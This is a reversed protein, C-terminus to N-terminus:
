FVKSFRGSISLGRGGCCREKDHSLRLRMAAANIRLRTVYHQPPAGVLERFRAAFTTRSMAVHRALSVVTWSHHPNRHIAALVRGIQQHRIAALWGSNDTESSEDLFSRLAHLFLVDVLRDVVEISGTGGRDLEALIHKVNSPVWAASGSDGSRLHLFPPLGGIVPHGSRDEIGGCVLRTAPGTGGSCGGKKGPALTSALDAFDVAPTSPSDQMTHYQKRRVIAFDGESLQVPEGWGKLHLWCSGQAVIHFVAWDREFSV